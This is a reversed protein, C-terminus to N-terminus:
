CGHTRYFVIVQIMRVSVFVYALSLGVQLAVNWRFRRLKRWGDVFNVAVLLVGTAVVVYGVFHPNVLGPLRVSDDRNATDLGAAVIITAVLANRAHDFIERAGGHDFLARMTAQLHSKM